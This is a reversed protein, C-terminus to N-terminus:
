ISYFLTSWLLLHQTLWLWTLIQRDISVHSIYMELMHYRIPFISFHGCFVPTRRAISPTWASLLYRWQTVSERKSRGAYGGAVDVQIKIRKEWHWSILFSHLAWTCGEQVAVSWGSVTTRSGQINIWQLCANTDSSSRRSSGSDSPTWGGAPRRLWTLSSCNVAAPPCHQVLILVDIFLRLKDTAYHQKPWM